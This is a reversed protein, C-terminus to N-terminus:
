ELGFLSLLKKDCEDLYQFNDKFEEQFKEINIQHQISSQKIKKLQRNSKDSEKKIMNNKDKKVM